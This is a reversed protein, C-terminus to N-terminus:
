RKDGDENDHISLTFWGDGEPPTPTWSSCDCEGDDFWKSYLPHDPDSELMAYTTELGQEALWAGYAAFNEGFDPIGPHLWWGSEDRKVEVPLLTPLGTTDNNQCTADM